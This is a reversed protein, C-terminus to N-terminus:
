TGIQQEALLAPAAIAFFPCAPLRWAFFLCDWLACTAFDVPLFVLAKLRPLALVFGSRTLPLPWVWMLDFAVILRILMYREFGFSALIFAAGFTGITRM